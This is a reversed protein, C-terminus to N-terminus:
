SVNGEGCSLRHAEEHKNWGQGKTYIIQCRDRYNQSLINLFHIQIINVRKLTITMHVLVKNKMM